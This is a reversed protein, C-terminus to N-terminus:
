APLLIFPKGPTNKGAPLVIDTFKKVSLGGPFYQKRRAFREAGHHKPKPLQQQVIAHQLAPNPPHIKWLQLLDTADASSLGEDPHQNHM